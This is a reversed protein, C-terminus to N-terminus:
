SSRDIFLVGVLTFMNAIFSVGSFQWALSLLASKADTIQKLSGIRQRLREASGKAFEQEVGADDEGFYERLESLWGDMKDAPDAPHDRPWLSAIACLGAVFLAVISVYQFILLHTPLSPEKAMFEACQTALFTIVVLAIGAKADLIDSLSFLMQDRARLRELIERDLESVSKGRMDSYRSRGAAWM